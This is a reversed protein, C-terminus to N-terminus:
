ATDKGPRKRSTLRCFALIGQKFGIEKHRYEEGEEMFLAEMAICIDIVKDEVGKIETSDRLRRLALNLVHQEKGSRVAYKDILGMLEANDFPRPTAARRSDLLPLLVQSTGRSRAETTRFFPLTAAVPPAVAFWSGFVQLGNGWILGMIVALTLIPSGYDSQSIAPVPRLLPSVQREFDDAMLGRREFSNVELACVNTTQEPPWRLESVQPQLLLEANVRQLAERYPLLTCYDDLPKASSVSAGKLLYFSRVEIMGHAAFEMAYKAVTEAGHVAAALLLKCAATLTDLQVEGNNGWKEGDSVTGALRSRKANPTGTFRLGNNCTKSPQYAAWVSM